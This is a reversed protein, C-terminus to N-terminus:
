SQAIHHLDAFNSHNVRENHVYHSLLDYCNQPDEGCQVFNAFDFIAKFHDSAVEDLITKCRRGIDGFIYNCFRM